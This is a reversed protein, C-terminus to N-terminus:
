DEEGAAEVAEAWDVIEAVPAAAVWEYHGPENWDYNLITEDHATLEAYLSVRDQAAQRWNKM